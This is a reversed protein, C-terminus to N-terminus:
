FQEELSTVVAFPETSGDAKVLLVEYPSFRDGMEMGPSGAPMGPVALGIAGEPPNALFATIYKAPIHGEFFYGEVTVATHCSQLQSPINFKKKITDLSNRNRITPAFGNEQIHSVWKGCCGCAPSKFVEIARGKSVNANEEPLSSDSCAALAVLVFSLFSFTIAKM